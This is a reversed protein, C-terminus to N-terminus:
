GIVHDWWKNEHQARKDIAQWNDSFGTSNYTYIDGFQLNQNGNHRVLVFHRKKKQYNQTWLQRKQCIDDPLVSARFAAVLGYFFTLLWFM